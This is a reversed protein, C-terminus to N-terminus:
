KKNNVLDPFQAVLIAMFVLSAGIVERSSMIQNLFLFGSLAAFVSELSMIISALSPELEKQTIVQLTYAIGTSLIGAYAIPLFANQINTLEPKEIFIMPLFSIIAVFAYQLLALYLPNVKETFYDICLIHLAFVFACMLIYIDGIVFHEVDSFSLFYLGVLSLIVAGWISIHIKRKLFVALLPVFIIYLSSLFGAKGVSTFAIGYQQLYMGTALIVGCCFGGLLATKDLKDNTPKVKKIIPFLLLLTACGLVCRLCNFTWPGIYATGESQAVFASGWIFATFMLIIQYLYKKM